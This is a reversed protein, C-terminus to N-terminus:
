HLFDTEQHTAILLKHQIHCTVSKKNSVEFFSRETYERKEEKEEEVTSAAPCRHRGCSCSWGSSEDGSTTRTVLV